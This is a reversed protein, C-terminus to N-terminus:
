FFSLDKLSRFVFFNNGRESLFLYENIQFTIAVILSKSFGSNLSWTQGNKKKKQPFTM